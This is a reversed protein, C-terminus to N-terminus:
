FLHCSIEFNKMENKEREFGTDMHANSKFSLSFFFAFIKTSKQM